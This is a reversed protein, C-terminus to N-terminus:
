LSLEKEKTSGKWNLIFSKVMEEKLNRHIAINEVFKNIVLNDRIIDSLKNQEVNQFKFIYFINMPKGFVQASILSIMQTLNEGIQQSRIEWIQLNGINTRDPGSLTPERQLGALMEQDNEINDVNKSDLDVDIQISYHYSLIFKKFLKHINM